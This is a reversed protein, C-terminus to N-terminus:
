NSAIRKIRLQSGENNLENSVTLSLDNRCIRYRNKLPKVVM